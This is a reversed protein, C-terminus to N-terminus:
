KLSFLHFYLISMLKPHNFKHRWKFVSFIKMTYIYFYIAYYLM